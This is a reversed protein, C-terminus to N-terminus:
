RCIPLYIHIKVSIDTNIVGFQIFPDNLERRLKEFQKDQHANILDYIENYKRTRVM